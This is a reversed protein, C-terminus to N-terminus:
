LDLIKFTKLDKVYCIFLYNFYIKKVNKEKLAFTQVSRWSSKSSQSAFSELSFFDDGVM